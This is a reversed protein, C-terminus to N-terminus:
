PPPLFRNRLARLAYLVRILWAKWLPLRQVRQVPEPHKAAADALVERVWGPVSRPLKDLSFWDVKVSEWGPAALKELVRGEFVQILAGGGPMDPRWYTGVTRELAVAYGTEELVERVAAAEPTEGLEIGGGPLSWLRFDERLHLLVRKRAEDRVVVQAGDPTRPPITSM